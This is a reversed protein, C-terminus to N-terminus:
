SSGKKGVLRNKSSLRTAAHFLSDTETEPEGCMDSGFDMKQPTDTQLKKKVSCPRLENMEHRRAIIIKRLEM